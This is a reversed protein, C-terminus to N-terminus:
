QITGERVPANLDPHQRHAYLYRLTALDRTTPKTATTETNPWMIDNVNDSHGELGLMHGVEHIVVEQTLYKTKFFLQSWLHSKGAIDSQTGAGANPLKNLEGHDIGVTIDAFTQNSIRMLSLKNDLGANWLSFAQQFLDPLGEKVAEKTYYVRLDRRYWTCPNDLVDVYTENKPPSSVMWKDDDALDQPDQSSTVVSDAKIEIHTHEKNMRLRINKGHYVTNGIRIASKARVTKPPDGCGALLLLLCTLAICIRM